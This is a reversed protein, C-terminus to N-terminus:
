RPDDPGLRIVVDITAEGHVEYLAKFLTMLETCDHWGSGPHKAAHMTRRQREARGPAYFRVNHHECRDQWEVFADRAKSM